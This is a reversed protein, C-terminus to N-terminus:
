ETTELPAGRRALVAAREPTQVRKPSGLDGLIAGLDGWSPGLERWSAGLDGWSRGLPEGSRKGVGWSRGLFAWSRGLLSWSRGLPTKSRDQPWRAANRLWRPLSFTHKEKHKVISKTFEHKQGLLTEAPMKSGLKRWSPDDFTTLLPVVAALLDELPAWSQNLATSSHDLLPWSRGM